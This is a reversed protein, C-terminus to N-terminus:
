FLLLRDVQYKVTADFPSDGFSKSQRHSDWHAKLRVHIDVGIRSGAPFAKTSESQFNIKNSGDPLSRFSHSATTYRPGPGTNQFLHLEVGKSGNAAGERVTYTASGQVIAKYRRRSTPVDGWGEFFYSAQLRQFEFVNGKIYHDYWAYGSPELHKDSWHRPHAELSLSIWQPSSASGAGSIIPNPHLDSPLVVAWPGNVEWVGWNTATEKLVLTIHGFNLTEAKPGSEYKSGDAYYRRMQVKWPGGIGLHTGGGGGAQAHCSSSGLPITLSYKALSLDDAGRVAGVRKLDDVPLDPHVPFQMYAKNAQISRIATSEGRWVGDIGFASNAPCNASADPVLEIGGLSEVLLHTRQPEGLVRVVLFRHRDQDGKGVTEMVWAAMLDAKEYIEAIAGPLDKGARDVDTVRVVYQDVAKLFANVEDRIIPEFHNSIYEDLSAAPRRDASIADPHDELFHYGAAIVTLGKAQEALVYGFYQELLQYYELIEANTKPLGGGLRASIAANLRPFVGQSGTEIIQQRIMSLHLPIGYHFPLTSDDTFFGLVASPGSDGPRFEKLATYAARIWTIESNTSGMARDLKLDAVAVSLQQSLATLQDSVQDLQANIDKLDQNIIDLGISDSQHDFGAAYALKCVASKSGGCEKNVVKQGVYTFAATALTTKWSGLQGPSDDDPVEPGVPNTSDTDCGTTLSFLLTTLTVCYRMRGRALRM